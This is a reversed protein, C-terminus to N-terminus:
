FIQTPLTPLIFSLFVRAEPYSYMKDITYIQNVPVILTMEVWEQKLILTFSVYFTETQHNSLKKLLNPQCFRKDLEFKQRRKKVSKQSFLLNTYRLGLVQEFWFIYFGAAHVVEDKHTEGHYFCFSQCIHLIFIM